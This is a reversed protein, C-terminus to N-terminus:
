RKTGNTQNIVNKSCIYRFKGIDQIKWYGSYILTHKFNRHYGTILKQTIMKSEFRLTAYRQLKGIHLIM